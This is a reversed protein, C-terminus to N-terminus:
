EFGDGKGVTAQRGGDGSGVIAGTRLFVTCSGKRCLVGWLIVRGNEVISWGLRIAEFSQLKERFPKGKIIRFGAPLDAPDVLRLRRVRGAATREKRGIGIKGDRGIGGVVAPNLGDDILATDRLQRGFSRGLPRVAIASRSMGTVTSTNCTLIAGPLFEAAVALAWALTAYMIIASRSTGIALVDEM